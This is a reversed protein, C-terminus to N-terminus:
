RLAGILTPWLVDNRGWVPDIVTVQWADLVENMAADGIGEFIFEVVAADLEAGFATAVRGVDGTATVPVASRGGRFSGFWRRRTRHRIVRLGADEAVGHLEYLTSGVAFGKVAARQQWDRGDWGRTPPLGPQSSITVLGARNLAALTPILETTEEDPGCGPAYGPWSKVEGELWLAMVEGVDALSRTSAWRKRDARSM